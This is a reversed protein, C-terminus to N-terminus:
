EISRAVVSSNVHTSAPADTSPASANSILLLRRPMRRMAMGPMRITTATSSRTMSALNQPTTAMPPVTTMRNKRGQSSWEGTM